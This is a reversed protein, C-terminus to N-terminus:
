SQMEFFFKLRSFLNLIAQKHYKCMNSKIVKNLLHKINKNCIKHHTIYEKHIKMIHSTIFYLFM